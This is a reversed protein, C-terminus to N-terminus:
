HDDAGPRGWKVIRTAGDQWSEVRRRALISMTSQDTGIFGAGSSQIVADILVPYWKGYLEETNEAAYDIWTWGLAAVDSWWGPDKEDSTMIVHKVELGKRELLEQQVEAVRRAIVPLSAYCQDLPIDNCYTKFDGHRMHISIFPPTDEDEPVNLARRVYIDTIDALRSSWRMHQGVFRWAPSYDFDYEFARQAGVYYLYDYCLLQEDPPLSLQHEPSPYPDRLNSERTEPFALSALSWFSSHKDGVDPPTLKVWDPTPTYSIDLKLWSSLFSFRPSHETFQVAEWISWCGLDDLSESDVDKVQHWELVPKGIAKSLRPVDFIEGFSIPAVESGIHSPIFKPIIPVRDTLLALYLLNGQSCVDTLSDNPEV